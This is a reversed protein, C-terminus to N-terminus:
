SLGLEIPAHPNKDSIVYTIINAEFHQHPSNGLLVKAMHQVFNLRSADHFPHSRLLAPLIHKAFNTSLEIVIYLM